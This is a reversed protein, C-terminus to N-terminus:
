RELAIYFPGIHLRFFAGIDNRWTSGYFHWDCPSFSIVFSMESLPHHM